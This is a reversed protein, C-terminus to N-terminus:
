KVNVITAVREANGAKFHIVYLKGALLNKISYSYMGTSQLRTFDFIKKGLMDYISLNVPCQQTITYTLVGNRLNFTSQELLKNNHLISTGNTTTFVWWVSWTTTDAKVAGVRWKYV